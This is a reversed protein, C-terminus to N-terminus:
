NFALAVYTMCLTMSENFVETKFMVHSIFPKVHLLFALQVMSLVILTFIQATFNEFYFIGLVAITARRVLFFVPNFIVSKSDLRLSDIASGFKEEFKSDSWYAFRQTYYVCIFPPIVLLAVIVGTTSLYNLVTFTSLELKENNYQADAEVRVSYCAAITLELSAELGIRIFQNWFLSQKM